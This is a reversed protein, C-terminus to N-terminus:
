WMYGFDNKPYDGYHCSCSYNTWPWEVTSELGSGIKIPVVRISAPLVRLPVVLWGRAAQPIVFPSSLDNDITVPSGKVNLDGFFNFGGARSEAKDEGGDDGDGVVVM